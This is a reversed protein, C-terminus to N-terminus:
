LIAMHDVAQTRTHTDFIKSFWIGVIAAFAARQQQQEEEAAVETARSSSNSSVPLAVVFHM